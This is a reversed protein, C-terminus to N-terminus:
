LSKKKNDSSKSIFNTGYCRGKRVISDALGAEILIMFSFTCNCSHGSPARASSDFSNDFKKLDRTTVFSGQFREYAEYLKKMKLPINSKGRRYIIQEENFHVITSTGGGPNNLPARPIHSLITHIFEEFLM